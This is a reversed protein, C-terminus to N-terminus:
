LEVLYRPRFPKGTVGAGAIEHLKYARLAQTPYGAKTVEYGYLLVNGTKPYRLSYPEVVRSVGHYDIQACLRNRAAYIISDLSDGHGVAQRWLEGARRSPKPEFAGRALPFFQRPISGENAKQSAPEPMPAKRAPELWWSLADPLEEIFGEVDPLVPLQHGLLQAWNTRLVEADVQAIIVAVTPPPLEKYAFKARLAKAAAVADVFERLSRSLHVVDDVDRARGRREYLARSKEALVENVSYTRVTPAPLVADDYPHFVPRLEPPDVIIEDQTLDFKVRQRAKRALGIPGSYTAKAQLTTRGRKNVSEKVELGDAPFEIGTETEVWTVVEELGSEISDLTYPEGEPITFDLDESLRYTEFFCKKLCTGGQFVWRGVRPHRSIGYLVWGLVYAKEVITERLGQRDALERLAAKPIM